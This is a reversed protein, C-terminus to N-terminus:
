SSNSVAGGVSISDNIDTFYGVTVTSGDEYYTTGSHTRKTGGSINVGSSNSLTYLKTITSASGNNIGVGSLTGCNYYYSGTVTGSSLSSLNTGVIAGPTYKSNTVTANLAYCNTVLGVNSGVIGGAGSSTSGSDKNYSSSVTGTFTCNEVTGENFGVIGGVRADGSVTGSVNLNKITGSNNGFLGQRHASSNIFLGSITHGNGNFTGKFMNNSDTNTSIPTWSQNNLDLDTNLTITYDKYTTGNNVNQALLALEAASTITISNESSTSFSSAPSGNWVDATFRQLDFIFNAM